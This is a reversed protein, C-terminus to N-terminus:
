SKPNYCFFGAADDIKNKDPTGRFFGAPRDCHIIETPELENIGSLNAKLLPAM